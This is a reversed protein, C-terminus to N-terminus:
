GQIDPHKGSGSLPSKEFFEPMKSSMLLAVKNTLEPIHLGELRTRRKVLSKEQRSSLCNPIFIRPLTTDAYNPKQPNQTIILFSTTNQNGIQSNSNLIKKEISFRFDSM